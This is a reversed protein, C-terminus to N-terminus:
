NNDFEGVVVGVLQRRMQFFEMGAVPMHAVFDALLELVQAVGAQQQV